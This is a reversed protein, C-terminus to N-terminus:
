RWLGIDGGQDVAGVGAVPVAVEVQPQLGEADLPKGVVESLRLVGDLHNGINEDQFTAQM